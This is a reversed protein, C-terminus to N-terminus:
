MISIDFLIHHQTGTFNGEWISLLLFIVALSCWLSSCVCHFPSRFASFVSIIVIPVRVLAHESGMIGKGLVGHLAVWLAIYFVGALLVVLDRVVGHAM